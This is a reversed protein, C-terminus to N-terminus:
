TSFPACNQHTRRSARSSNRAAPSRESIPTPRNRSGRWATAASRAREVDRNVALGYRERLQREVPAVFEGFLSDGCRLHHDLFSMPAGVTFSHLWLSLKALEVAMPNLDVGYIVRKLIIRRVLHRDDLQEDPVDWGNRDASQRIDARLREVREVLPSRYPEDADAWSVLAPADTIETLVADALYDVLSVLFHGSGMAPDCVRLGVFAQAPDLDRLERLRESKPRRDHALAEAKAAFADHREQLLPGIARRLILRVLEDPTYYSGTSKRAFPSPRLRLEGADNAIVEQELLREYISGLHQVSLDRYNIRQRLLGYQDRSLADIIPALQADPIAIEDLLPAARDDFLGGNYPPLGLEAAGEAIAQFLANLRTWWTTLRTGLIRKEDVAEAAMDRLQQLGYARYADLRVPLLDRDEAYLLFLLRYLLRLAAERVAARWAPDHPRPSPAAKGVATVLDLFVRDFVARSLSETVRQEYRRGEDLARDLFNRREAGEPVLADRGFLLVFVRLWHHEDAGPPLSPPAELGGAPSAGVVSPLDLEVFGEARARAQAWYLRWLRGNTLLGWRVRGGSQAEARGLYRLLQHAPAEGSSSARDLLRDKAENEVVVAGLRFREVSPLPRATATTQADLFLLADAIDRRGRGPEQQPLHEWGLRALIPNILVAETEAESPRPMEDLAQWHRRVATAFEALTATDLRAYEPMARVGDELFFRTFLGGRIM